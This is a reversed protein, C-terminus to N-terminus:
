SCMVFQSGGGNVNAMETLNSQHKAFNTPNSMVAVSCVFLCPTLACVSLPDSLDNFFFYIVLLVICDVSCELM